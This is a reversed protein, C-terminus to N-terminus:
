KNKGRKERKDFRSPMPVPDFGGKCFPNCRLIRWIAMGIGKLAGYTEIAEVAYHSCTPEFRCSRPTYASICRQYWRIVAIFIRKM